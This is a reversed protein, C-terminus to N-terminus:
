LVSGDDIITKGSSGYGNWPSENKRNGRIFIGQFLGEPNRRIIYIRDSVKLHVHKELDSNIEKSLDQSYSYDQIFAISDGCEKAGLNDLWTYLGQYDGKLGLDYSLWFYEKKM